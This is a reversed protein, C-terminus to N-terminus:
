RKGKRTKPAPPSAPKRAPPPPPVPLPTPAPSPAPVPSPPPTPTPTAAPETAPDPDDAADDADPTVMERLMGEAIMLTAAFPRLQPEAHIVVAALTGDPAPELMAYVADDEMDISGLVMAALQAATPAPTSTLMALLLPAGSRMKEVIDAPLPFSPAPPPPAPQPTPAPLAIAPQVAARPQAPSPAPDNAMLKSAIATGLPGNLIGALDFGGAAPEDDAAQTMGSKGMFRALKAAEFLEGMSSKPKVIELFVPLMKMFEGVSSTAQQGPQQSRMLDMMDKWTPQATPGQPAGGQEIRDLRQAISAMAAALPDAPEPAPQPAGFSFPHPQAPRRIARVSPDISVDGTGVIPKGHEGSCVQVFYDGGGHDRGVAEISFESAPYTQVHGPRAGVRKRFVRVTGETDGITSLAAEIPDAEQPATIPTPM